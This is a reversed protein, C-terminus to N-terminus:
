MKNAASKEAESLSAAMNAEKEANKEKQEKALAEAAEQENTLEQATALNDVAIALFVNLLTDLYYILTISSFYFFLFQIVIELFCWCFSTSQPLLAGVTRVEEQDLVM